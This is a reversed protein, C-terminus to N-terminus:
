EKEGASKDEQIQALREQAILAWHVLAEELKKKNVPKILYGDMGAELCREEDGKHASATLAIIPITRTSASFRNRDQRLSQTAKYGDMVPMMCDMLIIDPSPLQSKARTDLLELAEEGNCATITPLGLKNTMLMAIKMNVANDEVILVLKKKREGMSLTSTAHTSQASSLDGGGAASMRDQLNPPSGRPANHAVTEVNTLLGDFINTISSDVERIESGAIRFPIIVVAKTGVNLKSTFHITGGMMEVLQRSITLGLGTGGYNRATSSDAQSFAEFIKETTTKSMGCGTDEVIFQIRTLEDIYPLEGTQSRSRSRGDDNDQEDSETGSLVSVHLTVTGTQTFKISNGILNLFIQHLRNLDGVVVLSALVDVIKILSLGKKQAQVGMMGHVSDVLQCIRFPVDELELRGAEIKSLDLVDNIVTLLQAASSRINESFHRLDGNDTQSLLSEMLLDNM